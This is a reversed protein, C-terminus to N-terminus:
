RMRTGLIYTIHQEDLRCITDTSIMGRDAVICFQGIGFRNRLRWRIFIQGIIKTVGGNGFFESGQGEFYISTTDFLVLDLETFFDKNSEFMTEEM